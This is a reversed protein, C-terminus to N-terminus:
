LVVGLLIWTTKVSGSKLISFSSSSACTQCVAFRSFLSYSASEKSLFANKPTGEGPTYVSPRWKSFYTLSSEYVYISSKESSPFCSKKCSYRSSQARNSEPNGTRSQFYCSIHKLEETAQPSLEALPVGKPHRGSPALPRKANYPAGYPPMGLHRRIAPDIKCLIM